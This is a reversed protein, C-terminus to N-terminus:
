DNEFQEIHRVLERLEDAVQRRGLHASHYPEKNPYGEAEIMAIKLEIDAKFSRYLREYKSM